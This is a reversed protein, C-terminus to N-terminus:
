KFPSSASPPLNSSSRKKRIVRANKTRNRRFEAPLDTPRLRSSGRRRGQSGCFQEAMETALLMWEKLKPFFMFNGCGCVPNSPSTPLADSPGFASGGNRKTRCRSPSSAFVEKWENTEAINSPSPVRATQRRKSPLLKTDFIGRLVFAM